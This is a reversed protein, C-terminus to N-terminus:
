ETTCIRAQLRIVGHEAAYHETERELPLRGVEHEIDDQGGDEDVEEADEVEDDGALGAFLYLLLTSIPSERPPPTSKSVFM